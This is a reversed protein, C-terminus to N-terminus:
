SWYLAGEAASALLFAQEAEQPVCLWGRGAASSPWFDLLSGKGIGGGPWGLGASCELVGHFLMSHGNDHVILRPLAGSFMSSSAM